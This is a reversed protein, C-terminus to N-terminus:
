IIYEPCKATPCKTSPQGPKWPQQCSPAFKQVDSKPLERSRSIVLVGTEDGGSLLSRSWSVSYWTMRKELHQQPLSMYLHRPHPLDPPPIPLTPPHPPYPPPSPLPTPLTPSPLPTPLTPPHPIRICDAPLFAPRRPPPYGNCDTRPASPYVQPGLGRRLPRLFLSRPNVCASSHSWRNMLPERTDSRTPLAASVNTNSAHTSRSPTYLLHGFINPMAKRHLFQRSCLEDRFLRLIWAFASITM